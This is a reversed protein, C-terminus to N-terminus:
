SGISYVVEIKVETNVRDKCEYEVLVKGDERTSLKYDLSTGELIQAKEPLVFQFRWSQILYPMKVHSFRIKYKSAELKEVASHYIFQFEEVMAKNYLWTFDVPYLLEFDLLDACRRPIYDFGFTLNKAYGFEIDQAALFLPADCTWRASDKVYSVDGGEWANVREMQITHTVDKNELVETIHLRSTDYQWYDQPKGGVLKFVITALAQSISTPTYLYILKEGSPLEVTFSKSQDQAIYAVYVWEDKWYGYIGILPKGEKYYVKFTFGGHTWPLRDLKDVAVMMSEEKIAATLLRFIITVSTKSISTPTYVYILKEGTSLMIEFSDSLGQALWALHVHDKKLQSYVDLAPKDKDYYAKFQFERRAWPLDYWKGVAVTMTQEQPQNGTESYLLPVTSTVILIVVIVIRSLRM